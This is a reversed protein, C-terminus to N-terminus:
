AASHRLPYTRSAQLYLISNPLAVALQEDETDM